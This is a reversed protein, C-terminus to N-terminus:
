PKDLLGDLKFTEKDGGKSGAALMRTRLDFNIKGEDTDTEIKYLLDLVKGTARELLLVATIHLKQKKEDVMDTVAKIKAVEIGHMPEVSVLTAKGPAKTDDEGPPGANVEWSEGVRVPKPPLFQTNWRLFALVMTGTDDAPDPDGGETKTETKGNKLRTTTIRPLHGTIDEEKGDVKLSGSECESIVRSVGDPTAVNTTEKWLMNLGMDMPGSASELGVKLEIKYRDVEGEKFTRKLTYPAAEKQDLSAAHAAGVYLAGGVGLAATLMLVGALSRGIQLPKWSM